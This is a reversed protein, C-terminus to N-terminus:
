RPCSIGTPDTSSPSRPQRYVIVDAREERTANSWLQGLALDIATASPDSRWIVADVSRGDRVAELSKVCNNRLDKQLQLYHPPMWGSYGNMVPRAHSIGRYMAAVDEMVGRTPLEIVLDAHVEAALAPPVTVVPVAMWGDLVIAAAILVTAMLSRRTSVPWIRTIAFAAIVALCVIQVCSFLAPVRASDFGPAQMLWAYPPKYWFRHGFVRGVPGLALVSTVILGTGYLGSLSGTRLLNLFRASLLAALIGLDLAIGFMKYSVGGTLFVGLGVATVVVAFGALTRVLVDLWRSTVFESRRDRIGITVAAMVLLAIAVGPYGALQPHHVPTDVPWLMLHPSALVVSSLDASLFEIETITRHLNWEHQVGRYMLIQPSLALLAVGFAAALAGLKRWDPASVALWLVALALLVSFYLLFYGCIYGNLAMSVAFLALWRSSASIWYRHVGVLAVPMLFTAETQLHSLQSAHYPAFAFALSGVFAADRRATLTICLWYASLGNLVPQLVFMVNYAVLPSAGMWQLPTTVWTLGLLTESLAFANPAPAFAPANWYAETFPVRQTNWWLIWTNLVPDGLDGAIASGAHLILSAFQTVSLATLLAAM